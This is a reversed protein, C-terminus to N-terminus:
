VGISIVRGVLYNSGLPYCQMLSSLFVLSFKDRVQVLRAVHESCRIRVFGDVDILGDKAVYNLKQGFFLLPYNPVM